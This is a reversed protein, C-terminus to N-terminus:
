WRARRRADVRPERRVIEFRELAADGERARDPHAFLHRDLLHPRHHRGADGPHRDALGANRQRNGLSEDRGEIRAEMRDHRGDARDTRGVEGRQRMHRDREEAISLRLDAALAEDALDRQRAGAKSRHRDSRLIPMGEHDRVRGRGTAARKGEDIRPQREVREVARGREGHLREPRVERWKM